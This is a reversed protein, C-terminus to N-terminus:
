VKRFPPAMMSRCLYRVMIMAVKASTAPDDEAM